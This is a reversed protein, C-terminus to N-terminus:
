AALKEILFTKGDWSKILPHSLYSSLSYTLTCLKDPTLEIEFIRHFAEGNLGYGFHGNALQIVQVNDPFNRDRTITSEAEEKTRYPKPNGRGNLDPSSVFIITEILTTNGKTIYGTTKHLSKIDIKTPHSLANRIHRVIKEATLEPQFFTNHKISNDDFGWVASDIPYEHFPNKKKDGSKLNNLLEICNTLLSQLISLSLSVEYKETAIIQEHYQKLIIGLRRAYDAQIQGDDTRFYEM